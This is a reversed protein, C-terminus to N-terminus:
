AMGERTLGEVQNPQCAPLVMCGGLEGTSLLLSDGDRAGDDSVRGDEQGIFGSAIEIGLAAALDHLEDGFEVTLAADGDEHHSVFVIHRSVRASHDMEHIALDVRIGQISCRM